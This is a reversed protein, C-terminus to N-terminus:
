LWPKLWLSWNVGLNRKRGGGMPWIRIYYINRKCDEIYHNIYEKTCMRRFSYQMVDPDSLVAMLMDRDMPELERILVRKSEVINM